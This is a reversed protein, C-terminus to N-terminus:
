LALFRKKSEPEAHNKSIAAINILTLSEMTSM